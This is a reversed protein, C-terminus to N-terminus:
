KVTRLHREIGEVVEDPTFNDTDLIHDASELYLSTREEWIKELIERKAAGDSLLPRKSTYQIRSDLTEPTARLLIVYGSKKILLRNKESLITGGGTSILCNERALSTKLIATELTRFKEEGFTNFLDKILFGSENEIEHDLDIFDCKMKESLLKGVTTKWSGMMGILVINKKSNHM